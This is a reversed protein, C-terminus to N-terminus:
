GNPEQSRPMYEDNVSYPEDIGLQDKRLLFYRVLLLVSGALMYVAFGILTMSATEPKIHLSDTLTGLCPCPTLSGISHMTFRYLLFVLSLVGSLYLKVPSNRIILICAIVIVEVCAALVMVYRNPILFLENQYNLIKASGTASLVKSAATITLVLVVSIQFWKEIRTTNHQKM